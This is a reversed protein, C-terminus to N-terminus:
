VHKGGIQTAYFPPRKRVHPKVRKPIFKIDELVDRFSITTIRPKEVPPLRIQPPNNARRQLAARSTRVKINLPEPNTYFFEREVRSYETIIPYELLSDESPNPVHLPKSWPKLSLEIQYRKERQKKKQKQKNSRYELFAQLVPDDYYTNEEM